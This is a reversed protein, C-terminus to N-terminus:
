CIEILVAGNKVPKGFQPEGLDFRSDDIGIADAIGDLGSKMMAICNDKDPRRATKTHFTLNVKDRDKEPLVFDEAVVRCQQRYKKKARHHVAWHNRVNPSLEKPPWPFVLKNM